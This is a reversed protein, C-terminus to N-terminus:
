KELGEATTVLAEQLEDTFTNIYGDIDMDSNLTATSSFDLKIEATTFKNVSEREAIKRLWKLEEDSMGNISDKIDGTDSVINGLGTEIVDLGNNDNNVKDEAQATELANQYADKLTKVSENWDSKLQSLTLDRMIQSSIIENEYAALEESRAQKQAENEAAAATAFTVEAIADISVGPITNLKEIFGNIIGIAGNVMNQLGTLASVKMDGIFNSINVGATKWALQFAEIKTLIGDICYYFGYQLANMSVQVALKVIEWANKLGGLSQIWKYIAAVIVGIVIAIWVFPNALLSVVLARNAAVALWKAATYFGWATAAITIGVALGALVAKVTDSHENLFSIAGNLTQTVTALIPLAGEALTATFSTWNEELLKTQNAYSDSTRAFDGQADATASLLYNYRLITQEGQTMESYTESIGQKLAYAELNAVSMNIGLQKLPETEGSLGSRLKNFAEEGSLNYFSAMDGALETVTMSMKMASDSALGSSKLMAGMTGAYQKASLENLGFADLTTTSWEDIINSSGGFTVDVVNQVEKLDSALEVAQSATQMIESGIKYLGLASAVKSFTSKLTNASNVGQNISNNFKQQEENSESIENQVQQMETEAQAITEHISDFGSADFGDVSSQMNYVTSITMNMASIINNLIPTMKDALMISAGYNTM